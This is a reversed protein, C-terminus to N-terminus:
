VNPVLVIPKLGPTDSDACVEDLRRQMCHYSNINHTNELINYSDQCHKPTTNFCGISCAATDGFLQVRLNNGTDGVDSGQVLESILEWRKPTMEPIRNVAKLLSQVARLSVEM